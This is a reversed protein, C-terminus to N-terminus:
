RNALRTFRIAELRFGVNGKVRFKVNGTVNFRIYNRVEYYSGKM